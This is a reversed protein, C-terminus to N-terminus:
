IKHDYSMASLRTQSIWSTCLPKHAKVEWVWSYNIFDSTHCTQLQSSIPSLKTDRIERYLRWIVHSSPCKFNFKGVSWFSKFAMKETSPFPKGGIPFIIMIHDFWYWFWSPTCCILISCQCNNYSVTDKTATIQMKKNTSWLHKLSWLWSRVSLFTYRKKKKKEKRKKEKRKKEKREKEWSSLHEYATWIHFKWMCHKRCSKHCYKGGSFACLMNVDMRWLEKDIRVARYLEAM